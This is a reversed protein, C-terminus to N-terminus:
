FFCINLPTTIIEDGNKWKNADKLIKIAIQLGVTNSAVYHAHPVDAYKKFAEEFKNTKFGLGTWGLDLCEEIEKLIEEKRYKPKFLQINM